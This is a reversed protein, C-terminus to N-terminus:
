QNKMEKQNCKESMAVCVVTFTVPQHGNCCRLQLVVYCHESKITFYCKIFRYGIIPVRFYLVFVLAIRLLLTCVVAVFFNGVVLIQLKSVM